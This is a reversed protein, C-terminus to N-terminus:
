HIGTWLQEERKEAFIEDLYVEQGGQERSRSGAIVIKMSLIVAGNAVRKSFTRLDAKNDVM